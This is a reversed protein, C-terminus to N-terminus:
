SEVEYGLAEGLAKFAALAKIRQCGVYLTGRFLFAPMDEETGLAIEKATGLVQLEGCCGPPVDFDIVYTEGFESDYMPNRFRVVMGRKGESQPIIKNSM